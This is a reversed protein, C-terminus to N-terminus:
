GVVCPLKRAFRRRHISCQYDFKELTDVFTPVAQLATETSTMPRIVIRHRGGSDHDICVPVPVCSKLAAM